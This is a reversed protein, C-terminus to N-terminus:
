EGCGDFIEAFVQFVQVLVRLDSDAEVGTVGVGRPVIQGLGAAHPRRQGRQDASDTAVPQLQHVDIIGLVGASGVAVVVLPDPLAVDTRVREGFQEPLRGGPTNRQDQLRRSLRWFV